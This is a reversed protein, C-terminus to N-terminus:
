MLHIISHYKEIQLPFIISVLRLTNKVQRLLLLSEEILEEPFDKQM